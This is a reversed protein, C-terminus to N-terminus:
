SNPACILEWDFTGDTTLAVTASVVVKVGHVPSIGDWQETTAGGGSVGGLVHLVAGASGTATASLTIASTAATNGPQSLFFAPGDISQAHDVYPIVKITLDQDFNNAWFSGSLQWYNYPLNVDYIDGTTTSITTVAIGEGSDPGRKHIEILDRGSQRNNHKYPYAM